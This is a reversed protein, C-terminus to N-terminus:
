KKGLGEDHPGVSIIYITKYKDSEVIDFTFRYHHNIRGEWCNKGGMKKLRLSPHKSNKLLTDFQKDAKKQIKSSLKHYQKLSKKTFELRM